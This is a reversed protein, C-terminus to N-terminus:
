GYLGLVVAFTVAVVAIARGPMIRYALWAALGLLGFTFAFLLSGRLLNQWAAGTGTAQPMTGNLQHMLNFAAFLFLLVAVGVFAGGGKWIARWDMMTILRGLGASVLLTFPLASQM